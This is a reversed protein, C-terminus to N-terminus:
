TSPVEHEALADQISQYDDKGFAMMTETQIAGLRGLEVLAQAMGKNTEAEFFMVVDYRGLTLFWDTLEVGNRERIGKTLDGRKLSDGFEVRGKDTMKVMVIFTQM